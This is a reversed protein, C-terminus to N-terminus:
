VIDDTDNKFRELLNAVFEIDEKKVNRSANFLVKYEPHRFMFEAMERADEEIYYSEPHDESLDSRRCGFIKCMQDVKDMRPSKVGNVWNGVSTKSVGLKEALEVQTMGEKELYYRLRKSFVKNFEQESMDTDRGKFANKQAM